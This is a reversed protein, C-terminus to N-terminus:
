NECATYLTLLEKAKELKKRIEEKGNRTRSYKLVAKLLHVYHFLAERKNLGPYKGQAELVIENHLNLEARM